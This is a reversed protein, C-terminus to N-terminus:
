FPIKNELLIARIESSYERVKEYNDKEDDTLKQGVALRNLYMLREDEVSKYVEILNNRTDWDM